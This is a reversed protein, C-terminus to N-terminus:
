NHIDLSVKIKKMLKQRGAQRCGYFARDNVDYLNQRM